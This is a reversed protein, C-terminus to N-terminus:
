GSRRVASLSWLKSCLRRIASRVMAYLVICSLIKVSAKKCRGGILIQTTM